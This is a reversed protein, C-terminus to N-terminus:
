PFVATSTFVSTIKDIVQWYKPGMHSCSLLNSIDWGRWMHIIWNRFCLVAAKCHSVSTNAWRDAAVTEGTIKGLIHATEMSVCDKKPPKPIRISCRSSQNSFHGPKVNRAPALFYIIQQIFISKRSVQLYGLHTSLLYLGQSCKSIHDSNRNSEPSDGSSRWSVHQKLNSWSIKM